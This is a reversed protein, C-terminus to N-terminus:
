WSKLRYVRTILQAKRDDYLKLFIIYMLQKMKYYNYAFYQFSYIVQDKVSLKSLNDTLKAHATSGFGQHQQNFASTSEYNNTNSSSTTQQSHQNYASTDNTDHYNSSTQGNHSTSGGYGTCYLCIFIILMFM